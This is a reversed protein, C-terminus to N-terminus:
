KGEKGSEERYKFKTKSCKEYLNRLCIANTGNGMYSLHRCGSCSLVKDKSKRKFIM